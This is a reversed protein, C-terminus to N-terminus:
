QTKHRQFVGKGLRLFARRLNEDEIKHTTEELRAFEATTLPIEHRLQTVPRPIPQQRFALKEVCCWGLVSNVRQIIQPAMHQLEIAIGGSVAIILVAGEKPSDPDTKIGKPPWKLQLARTHKALQPGVLTEWRTIVEANAFGRARLAPALMEGVLDKIPKAQKSRTFPEAM